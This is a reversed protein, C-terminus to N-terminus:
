CDVALASPALHATFPRDTTNGFFLTSSSGQTCCPATHVKLGVHNVIPAPSHQSRRIRVSSFKTTQLWNRKRCWLRDSLFSALHLCRSSGTSRCGETDTSFLRSVFARNFGQFMVPLGRILRSLQPTLQLCKKPSTELHLHIGKTTLNEEVHSCCESDFRCQM